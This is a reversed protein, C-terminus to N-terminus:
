EAIKGIKLAMGDITGALADEAGELQEFRGLVAGDKGTFVIIAPESRMWGDLADVPLTEVCRPERLAQYTEARGAPEVTLTIVCRAEYDKAPWLHYRGAVARVEDPARFGMRYVKGDGKAAPKHEGLYQGTGIEYFVVAIGGQRYLFDFGREGPTWGGITQLMPFADCGDPVALDFRGHAGSELLTVTCGSQALGDTDFTYPGAFRGADGAEACPILALALLLWIARM